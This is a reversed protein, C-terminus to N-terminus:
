GASPSAVLLVATGDMLTAEFFIQGVDNIAPETFIFNNPNRERTASQQDPLYTGVGRIFTGTRAVLHLKGRSRLYLGTDGVINGTIVTELRGM